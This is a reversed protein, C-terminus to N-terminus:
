GFVKYHKQSLNSKDFKDNRTQRDNFNQPESICYQPLCNNQKDSDWFSWISFIWSKYQVPVTFQATVM